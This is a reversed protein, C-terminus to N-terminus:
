EWYHATRYVKQTAARRDRKGWDLEQTDADAHRLDDDTVDAEYAERVVNYRLDEWPLSVHKQGFRLFGGFTLVAYAVKGSTKEIMLRQIVGIKEGSPRRVPTGEVRDSAILNHTM